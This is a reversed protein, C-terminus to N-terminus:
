ASISVGRLLKDVSRRTDTSLEVQRLRSTDIGVIEENINIEFAGRAKSSLEIAEHREFGLKQLEIIFQDVTGYNLYNSWNSHMQDTLQLYNNIYTKVTFRIITELEKMLDNIVRNIHEPSNDFTVFTQDIRIQHETRACYALTNKIIVNLPRSNVWEAMLVAYYSLNSERGLYRGDEEESWNYLRSLEHLISLCADYDYTEPLEFRNNSTYIAEQYKPKISISTMLITEPVTIKRVQQLVQRAGKGKEVLATRLLSGVQAKEQYAFISAYNSLQRKKWAPDNQRTPGKDLLVNGVNTYFKGKGSIIETELAPVEETFLSDFTETDWKSDQRIVFVNGSLEKALRGARGILNRFSLKDLNHLGIKNSLVFLNKAPLNVGELLTSTTFLYRIDGAKFSEEIRNRLAQPLAGFHIAVGKEVFKALDYKEHITERISAALSTLSASVLLPLGDAERRAADITAQISNCYVLSQTGGSLTTIITAVDNEFYDSESYRDGEEGAFDFYQRASHGVLDLFFVNQTVSLDQVCSVEQTSNGILKLFIEPNPVYPSAFFIKVSKQKSLTIAHYFLPSRDDDSITKQAEDVIMTDIPPNQTSFYSILREPTFVFIFKSGRFLAPIESNIVIRYQAHKHDKNIADIKDSLDNVVQTILARTPVLFAFNQSANTSRIVRDVYETFLFSKGFSTGASFSYHNSDELRNLVDYQSDTLVHKGDSTQQFQCKITEDAKFEADESDNGNQEVYALSPFLGLKVLVNKSFLRYRGDESFEDYLASVIKLAINHGEAIESRSLIDSFRLVDTLEKDTFAAPERGLLRDGYRKQVKTLLERLYPDKIARENLM